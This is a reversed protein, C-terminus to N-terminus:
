SFAHKTNAVTTRCVVQALIELYPYHSAVEAFGLAAKNQGEQWVDYTLAYLKKQPYPEGGRARPVQFFYRTLIVVPIISAFPFELAYM